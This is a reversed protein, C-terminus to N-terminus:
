FFQFFLVDLITRFANQCPKAGIQAMNSSNKVRPVKSGPDAPRWIDQSHACFTDLTMELFLICRFEICGRICGRSANLFGSIAINREGKDNFIHLLPGPWFKTKVFFLENKPHSYSPMPQTERMEEMRLRPTTEKM